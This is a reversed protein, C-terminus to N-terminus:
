MVASRLTKAVWDCHPLPRTSLARIEREVDYEVRRITAKSDDLLLYAARRDGDYSLSVSGTNAVIMAEAGRVPLAVFSRAIFIDLSRLWSVSRDTSPRWNPM